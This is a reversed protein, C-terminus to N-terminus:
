CFLERTRLKYGGLLASIALRMLSRHTKAIDPNEYHHNGIALLHEGLFHNVNPSVTQSRTLGQEVDFQYYQSPEIARGDSEKDLHLGYGLESLLKMEFQRLSAIAELPMEALRNLTKQYTSFLVPYPDFRHLLKILLENLYLGNFLMKGELLHSVGCTEVDALQLLDTKGQCSILLPSFPQLCGKFRSRIGRASRAMVSVTGYNLTFFTILLSTERYAKAHLVYATELVLKYKTM